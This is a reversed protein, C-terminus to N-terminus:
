PRQPANHALRAKTFMSRWTSGEAGLSVRTHYLGGRRCGRDRRPHNRPPDERRCLEAIAYESRLGSLVIRIKDEASYRKRTARRIERVHQEATASPVSKQRM